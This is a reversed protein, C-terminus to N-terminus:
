ESGDIESVKDLYEDSYYNLTVLNILNQESKDKYIYGKIRLTFDITMVKADELEENTIGDEVISDLVIPITIPEAIEDDLIVKVSISPDFTKIFEEILKNIDDRYTSGVSVNYAIEVPVMVNKYLIGNKVINKKAERNKDPTYNVGIMSYAIMPFNKSIYTTTGDESPKNLAKLYNYKQRTINQIKIDVPVEDKVGGDWRTLHITRELVEKLIIDYKRLQSKQKVM